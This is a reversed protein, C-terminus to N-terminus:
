SHSSEITNYYSHFSETDYQILQPLVVFFVGKVVNIFPSSHRITNVTIVWYLITNVTPHSITNYESETDYQILQPIVWYRITNVTPHSLITNYYSHFSETDYQLLQFSETDYQLLQPTILSRITIVTFHSLITNYYSHSSKWYRIIVTPHNLITNFLHPIVYQM